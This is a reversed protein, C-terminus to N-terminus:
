KFEEDNSSRKGVGVKGCIIEIHPRVNNDHRFLQDLIACASKPNQHALTLPFIRLDKQSFTIEQSFYYVPGHPKQQKALFIQESLLQERLRYHMNDINMVVFVLHRFTRVRAFFLRIDEESAVSCWLIQYFAPLRNNFINLLVCCTEMDLNHSALTNGRTESVPHLTVLYQENENSFAENQFLEQGNNFIERLFGSVKNLFESDGDFSEIKYSICLRSLNEYSLDCNNLRLSRLYHILGQVTLKMDNEDSHHSNIGPFLKELLHRKIKNDNMPKSLLIAMIMIQRNTFLQLICCEQRSKELIMLWANHKSELIKCDLNLKKTQAQITTELERENISGDKKM